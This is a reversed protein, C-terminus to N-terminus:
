EEPKGITHHREYAESNINQVKTNATTPLKSTILVPLTM